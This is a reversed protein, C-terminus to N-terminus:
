TRIAEKQAEQVARYIKKMRSPLRGVIFTRTMDGRQKKYVVGFDIMVCDNVGIERGTVPAHPNAANAGSGVITKFAKRLGREAMKREIAKAIDSERSGTTVLPRIEDFIRATIRAARRLNALEKKTKIQINRM